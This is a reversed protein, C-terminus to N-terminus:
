TLIEALKVPRKEQWSRDAAFIVEHTRVADVLGALPIDRGKALSEFFQDFEQQYPPHLPWLRPPPTDLLDM